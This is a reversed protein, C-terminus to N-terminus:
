RGINGTEREEIDNRGGKMAGTDRTEKRRGM